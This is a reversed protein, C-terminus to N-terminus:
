FSWLPYRKGANKCDTIEIKGVEYWDIINNKDIASFMRKEIGDNLSFSDVDLFRRLDLEGILEQCTMKEIFSSFRRYKTDINEIDTILALVGEGMDLINNRDLIGVVKADIADMVSLEEDEWSEDLKLEIIVEQCTKPVASSGLHKYAVAINRPDSLRVEMDDGLDFVNKKDMATIYGLEAAQEISIEEAVDKDTIILGEVIKKCSLKEM